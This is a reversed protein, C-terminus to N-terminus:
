FISAKSRPASLPRPTRPRNSPRPKPQFDHMAEGIATDASQVRQVPVHQPQVALHQLCQAETGRIVATDIAEADIGPADIEGQKAAIARQEAIRAM